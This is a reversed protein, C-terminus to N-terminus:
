SGEFLAGVCMLVGRIFRLHLEDKMSSTSYIYGLDIASETCNAMGANFLIRTIIDVGALLCCAKEGLEVLLGRPCVGM